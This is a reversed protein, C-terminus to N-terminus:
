LNMDAFDIYRRRIGNSKDYCSIKIKRFKNKQYEIKVLKRPCQSPEDVKEPLDMFESVLQKFKQDPVKWKPPQLSQQRVDSESFIETVREPMEPLRVTVKISTYANAAGTMILIYFFIILARM